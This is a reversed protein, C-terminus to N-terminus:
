FDSEADHARRQRALDGGTRDDVALEADVKLERRSPTSPHEFM